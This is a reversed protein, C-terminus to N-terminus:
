FIAALFLDRLMEKLFTILISLLGSNSIIPKYYYFDLMTQVRFGKKINM